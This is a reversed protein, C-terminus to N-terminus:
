MFGHRGASTGWGPDGSHVFAVIKSIGSRSDVQPPLTITYNSFVAPSRMTDWAHLPRTAAGFVLKCGCTLATPYLPGSTM